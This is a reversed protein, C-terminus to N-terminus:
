FPLEDSDDHLEVKEPEEPEEDPYGVYDPNGRENAIREWENATAPNAM